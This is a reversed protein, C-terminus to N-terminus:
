PGKVYEWALTDRATLQLLSRGARSVVIVGCGVKTNHSRRTGGDPAPFDVEVLSAYGLQFDGTLTLDRHSFTWRWHTPAIEHRTCRWTACTNAIFNFQQSQLALVTRGGSTLIEFAATHDEVFCNGHAWAWEKSMRFGWLHGQQAPWHTLHWITDEFHIEGSVRGNWQRSEYKTQFPLWYMWCPLLKLSQIPDDWTLTRVLDVDPTWVRAEGWGPDTLVCWRWVRGQMRQERVWLARKTIPDNAKLYNVEFQPM